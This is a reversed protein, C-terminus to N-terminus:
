RSGEEEGVIGHDPYTSGIMARLRAEITADLDIVFTRDPKLVASSRAGQGALLMM